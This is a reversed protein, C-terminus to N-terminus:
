AKPLRQELATLSKECLAAIEDVDSETVILPPSFGLTDGMCRGILGNDYAIQDFTMGVNLAPDFPKRSKKDAVIEIGLMLGTGRVEGIIPSKKALDEFKQRLRAGMKRVHEVVNM